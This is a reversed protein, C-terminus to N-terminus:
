AQIRGGDITIGQGNIGGRDHVLFTVADAVEQPTILRNIPQMRALREAVDAAARGTKAVISEISKQTMPTDVYAPCVANVTIGTTALEAAASRVMGLVAHKAATYAVIYPAGARSAVSAVVVVRGFGGERMVPVGARLFRFPATANLDLMRAWLDDDTEEITASVGEGANLVLADLGGWEKVVADILQQPAMPDTADAPLVLTQAPLQDALAQLDAQGRATLAVQHGQEALSTAIAAGIGRSAGTVLCRLVRTSGHAPVMTAM